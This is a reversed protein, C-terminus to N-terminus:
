LLPFETRVPSSVSHASGLLQKMEACWRSQGWTLRTYSVRLKLRRDSYIPALDGSTSPSRPDESRDLMPGHVAFFV